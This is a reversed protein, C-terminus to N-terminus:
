SKKYIIKKRFKNKELFLRSELFYLELFLNLKSIEIRFIVKKNKQKILYEKSNPISFITLLSSFFLQYM